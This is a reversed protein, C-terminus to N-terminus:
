AAGEPGPPPTMRLLRKVRTGLSIVKGGGREVFAREIEAADPQELAVRAVSGCGCQGDRLAKQVDALQRDLAAFAQTIHGLQEATVLPGVAEAIREHMVNATDRAGAIGQAGHLRLLHRLDAAEVLLQAKEQKLTLITVADSEYTSM